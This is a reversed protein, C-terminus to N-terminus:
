RSRRVPEDSESSIHDQNGEVNRRQRTQKTKHSKAGMNINEESVTSLDPESRRREASFVGYVIHTLMAYDCTRYMYVYMSPLHMRVIDFQRSKRLKTARWCWFLEFTVGNQNHLNPEEACGVACHRHM